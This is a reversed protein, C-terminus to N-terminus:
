IMIDVFTKMVEKWLRPLLVKIHNATPMPQLHLPINSILWWPGLSVPISHFAAGVYVRSFGGKSTAVCDSAPSNVGCSILAFLLNLYTILYPLAIKLKIGLGAFFYISAILSNIKM